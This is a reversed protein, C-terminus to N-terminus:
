RRRSVGIAGAAKARLKTQAAALISTAAGREGASRYAQRGVAIREAHIGARLGATAASPAAASGLSGGRLPWRTPLRRQQSARPAFCRHGNGLVAVAFGISTGVRSARGAGTWVEIAVAACQGKSPEETDSRGWNRYEVCAYQM